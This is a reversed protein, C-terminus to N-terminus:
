RHSYSYPVPWIPNYRNKVITAASSAMTGSSCTRIKATPAEAARWRERILFFYACNITEATFSRSAAATACRQLATSFRFLGKPPHILSSYRRLCSFVLRDV